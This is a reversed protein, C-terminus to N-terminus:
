VGARASNVLWSIFYALGVGGGVCVAIVIGMRRATRRKAEATEQDMGCPEMAKKTMWLVM